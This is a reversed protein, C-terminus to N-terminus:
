LAEMPVEVTGNKHFNFEWTKIDVLQKMDKLIDLVTQMTNDDKNLEVFVLYHGDDDPAPSVETDIIKHSGREIFTALDMAPEDDKVYFAVVLVEKDSGSKAEFEDISVKPSVLNELDGVRLGEEIKHKKATVLNDLRM